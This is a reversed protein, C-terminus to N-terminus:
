SIVSAGKRYALLDTKIEQKLTENEATKWHM